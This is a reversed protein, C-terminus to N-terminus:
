VYPTGDWDAANLAMGAEGTAGPPRFKLAAAQFPKQDRYTPESSHGNKDRSLIIMPEGQIVKKLPQILGSERAPVSLLSHVFKVPIGPHVAFLPDQINTGRRRL